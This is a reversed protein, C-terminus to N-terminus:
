LANEAGGVFSSAAETVEGSGVAAPPMKEKTVVGIESTVVFSVTIILSTEGIRSGGFGTRVEGGGSLALGM